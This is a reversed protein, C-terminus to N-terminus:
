AMEKLHLKINDLALHFWDVGERGTEKFNLKINDQALHILDM